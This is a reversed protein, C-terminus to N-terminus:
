VEDEYYTLSPYANGVDFFNEGTSYTEGGSNNDLKMGIMLDNAQAILDPSQYSLQADPLVYQAAVRVPLWAPNDILVDDNVSTIEELEVYAPAYITGGFEQSEATFASPFRLTNGVKSVIKTFRGPYLESANKTSYLFTNTDSVIRVFDRERQSLRIVKTDSDLDFTDTATVTGAEVLTNLSNWDVGTEYAWDRHYKKCLNYLRLYKASGVTPLTSKGTALLYAETMAELITV